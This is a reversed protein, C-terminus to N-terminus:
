LVAHRYVMPVRGMATTTPADQEDMAAHQAVALQVAFLRSPRSIVQCAHALFVAADDHDADNMGCGDEQLDLVTEVLELRRERRDQNLSSVLSKELGLRDWATEAIWTHMSQLCTASVSTAMTLYDDQQQEGHAPQNWGTMAPNSNTCYEDYVAELAQPYSVSSRQASPGDQNQTEENWRNTTTAQHQLDVRRLAQVTAQRHRRFAQYDDAQYWCVDALEEKTWYAQGAHYENASENLHVRRQLSQRRSPRVLDSQVLCSSLPQRRPPELAGSTCLEDAVVVSDAIPEEEEQKTEEEQPAEMFSRGQQELVLVLAQALAMPDLGQPAALLLPTEEQDM